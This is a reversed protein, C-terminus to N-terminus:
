LTNQYTGVAFDDERKIIQVAVLEANEPVEGLVKVPTYNATYGYLEEGKGRHELLVELTRGIQRELYANRIETAAESLIKARRAKEKREIQDPFKAARTGERISYPFVHIKEFGITRAFDVSELFDAETEGAFGVMMDTTITADPFRKRMEEAVRKYEAATYHRNMRKLTNDAGSQLSIHFQPCLKECKQLKTLMADTMHDPELSGLRVRYIGEPKSAAQVADALDLDTGKGYSSLNIGVLVIEHYGKEALAAAEKEIDALPKSRVWGRAYPIICYTCFRDCGDEIKLSARTRENFDSILVGGFAEEREHENFREVRKRKELFEGLMELIKGNNRNGLVIDAETLNKADEPFAQPMCGTLIVISDPHNRKLHRVLQRTKRDSEATVTCSNVLFIDAEDENLTLSYGNKLFTEAIAETEYQNVKCGLTHFYVQMM